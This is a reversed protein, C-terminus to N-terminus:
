PEAKGRQAQEWRGQCDPKKRNMNLTHKGLKGKWMVKLQKTVM